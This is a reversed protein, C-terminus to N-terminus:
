VNFKIEFGDDPTAGSLPKLSSITPAASVAAYEKLVYLAANANTSTM